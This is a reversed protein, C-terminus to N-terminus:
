HGSIVRSGTVCDSWPRELPCARAHLAINIFVGCFNPALSASVAGKYAPVTSQELPTGRIAPTSHLPYDTVPM